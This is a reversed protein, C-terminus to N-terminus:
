VYEDDNWRREIDEPVFVVPSRLIPHIAPTLIRTEHMGNGTAVEQPIGPISDPIEDVGSKNCM